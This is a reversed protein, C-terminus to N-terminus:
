IIANCAALVSDRYLMTDTWTSIARARLEGYLSDDDLINLIDEVAQQDAEVVIANEGHSCYSGIEGVPTVVPVLGLQMSEVVSMAMGEYESTQLYFSARVAHGPIEDQSMHGMFKVAEELKLAVCQARLDHLVGGDPGIIWFCAEPHHKHIAAFIHIARTLNKQRALRGWFIFTPRVAVAPLEDFRRTVFSILRCRSRYRGPVRQILTQKSDVWIAHSFKVSLRTFIYDLLHADCTNHLFTVLRIKRNFLIAILGVISSRWLSAVIFDAKSRAVDLGAVIIAFPNYTRFVDKREEISSFIFRLRYDISGQRICGMSRAAVEVGGVGDFPIIHVFSYTGKKSNGNEIINKDM